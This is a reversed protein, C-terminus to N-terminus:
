AVMWRNDTNQVHIAILKPALVWIINLMTVRWFDSFRIIFQVEDKIRDNHL